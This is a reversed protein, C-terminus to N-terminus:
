KRQVHVQETTQARDFRAKATSDGLLRSRLFDLALPAVEDMGAENGRLFGHTADKVLLLTADGSPLADFYVLHQSADTVFGPVTDATGTVMLVPVTAQSLAGPMDTVGRISGPSSFMVVAKLGDIRGPVVPSLGGGAVLASLAGYSYGVAGQPLGAFRQAAYGAAVRMDATRTPFAEQLGTRREAPLSRSDTHTPAVVAFGETALHAFIGQTAAPASNGGHSFLIVGRPRAPAVVLMDVSRGDPSPVSVTEAIPAARQQVPATAQAALPTASLFSLALVAAITKYSM